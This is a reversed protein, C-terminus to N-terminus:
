LKAWAVSREDVIEVEAGAYLHVISGHENKCRSYMGDINIFKFVDGENAELGEMPTRSEGLVRIYSYKPVDYLKM